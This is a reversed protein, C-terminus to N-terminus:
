CQRSQCRLCSQRHRHHRCASKLGEGVSDVTNSEKIIRNIFFLSNQFDTMWSAIETNVAASVAMLVVLQM